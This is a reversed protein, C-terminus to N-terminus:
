WSSAHVPIHCCLWMCRLFNVLTLEPFRQQLKLPYYPCQQLVMRSSILKLDPKLWFDWVTDGWSNFQYWGQFPYVQLVQPVSIVMAKPCLCPILLVDGVLCNDNCLFPFLRPFYTAKPCLTSHSCTGRPFSVRHQSTLSRSLTLM